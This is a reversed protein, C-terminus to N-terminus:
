TQKHLCDECLIEYIGPPRKVLSEVKLQFESDCLDCERTSGLTWQKVFPSNWVDDDSWGEEPERLPRDEKHFSYSEICQVPVIMQWENDPIFFFRLAHTATGLIYASFQVVPEQDEYDEKSYAFIFGGDKIYFDSIERTLTLKEPTGRGYIGSDKVSEMCSSPLSHVFTENRVIEVDRMLFAPRANNIFIDYIDAWFYINKYAQSTFWDHVSRDAAHWIDARYADFEDKWRVVDDLSRCRELKRIMRMYQQATDPTVQTLKVRKGITSTLEKVALPVDIRLIEECLHEFADDCDTYERYPNDRSDDDDSRVSYSWKIEADEEPYLLALNLAHKEYELWGRYGLEKMTNLIENYFENDYTHFSGWQATRLGRLAEDADETHEYLAQRFRVGEPTLKSKPNDMDEFIDDVDFIPVDKVQVAYVYGHADYDEAEEAFAMAFGESATFFTADYDDVNSTPEFKDVRERERSGHFWLGSSENPEIYGDRRIVLPNYRLTTM